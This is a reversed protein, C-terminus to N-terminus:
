PTLKWIYWQLSIYKSCCNSTVCNFTDLHVFIKFLNTYTQFIFKRNCRSYLFKNLSHNSIKWNYINLLVLVKLVNKYSQIICLIKAVNGNLTSHAEFINIRVKKRWLFKDWNKDKDMRDCIDSFLFINM